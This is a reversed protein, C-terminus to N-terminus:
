PCDETMPSVRWLWGLRLARQLWDSLDFDAQAQLARSLAQALSAGSLLALMFGADGAQLLALEARWERRWLLLTVAEAGAWDEAVPLPWLRLADARAQLVQLGPRLVLRLAEPVPDGLRQLSAADLEVDRARESDAAAAELKACDLLAAPFDQQADLFVPLEACWVGIEGRQPPVDQWYRWAMAAFQAEGLAVALRPYAAALARQALARANAQYALLGDAVGAGAVPLLGPVDIPQGLIAQLLAQQRKLEAASM